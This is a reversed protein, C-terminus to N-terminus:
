HPNKKVLFAWAGSDLEKMLKMNHEFEVQTTSKAIAWFLKRFQLGKYTKRLNAYVLRACLRHEALPLYAKIADVLGKQQDLILCWGSGDQMGLDSALLSVFWAWSVSNERECVAWAVPYMQNNGDRGVAM